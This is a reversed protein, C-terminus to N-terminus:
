CDRSIKYQERIKKKFDDTFSASLFVSYNSKINLRKSVSEESPIYRSTVKLGPFLKIEVNNDCDSFRDKVVTGLTNLVNSIVNTSYGTKKHIM